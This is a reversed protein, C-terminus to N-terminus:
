NQVLRFEIGRARDALYFTSNVPLRYEVGPSLKQGDGLYTGYSSNLDQLYVEGNRYLLKCHTRSIGPTDEPFQITCSSKDRGLVMSDQLPIQRGQYAGSIGVLAYSSVPPVSPKPPAPPEPGPGGPEQKSKSAGTIRLLLGLVLLAAVIGALILVLKSETFLTNEEQTSSEGPQEEGNSETQGWSELALEELLQSGAINYIAFPYEENGVGGLGVVCQADTDYLPMGYWLNGIPGDGELVWCGDAWSLNELSVNGYSLPQETDEPWSSVCFAEVYHSSEFADGLPLTSVEAYEGYLYVFPEEGMRFPIVKFSQNEGTVAYLDYKSLDFAEAGVGALLWTHGEKEVSVYSLIYIEETERDKAYLLGVARVNDHEPLLSAAALLKDLEEKALVEGIDPADALQARAAALQEEVTATPSTEPEAAQVSEFGPPSTGVSLAALSMCAAAAMAKWSKRKKM